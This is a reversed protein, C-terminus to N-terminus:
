CYIVILWWDALILYLGFCDPVIWFHDLTISKYVFNLLCVNLDQENQVNNLRPFYIVTMDFWDVDLLCAICICIQGLTIWTYVSKLPCVDFPMETKFVVSDILVLSLDNIILWCRCLHSFRFCFPWLSRNTFLTYVFLMLLPENQFNISDIWM